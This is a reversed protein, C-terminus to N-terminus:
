IVFSYIIAFVIILIVFMNMYFTIKMIKDVEKKDNVINLLENYSFPAMM